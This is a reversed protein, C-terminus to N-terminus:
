YCTTTCNNGYCTTTCTVTKGGSTYTHTTMQAFVSFAITALCICIAKKM